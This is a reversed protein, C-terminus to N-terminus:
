NKLERPLIGFKKRFAATFHHPHKYGILHAVEGVYMKEDLLLRKAEKMRTDHLHGFVTTGFLEKFGNKLKMQNIGAKRALEMISHPQNYYLELLDKVEHLSTIDQPKLKSTTTQDQHDLQKIQLLFLEIAKAELYIGKLHGSYPSHQMDHIVHYMAPTIQATLDFAPMEASSHHLNMLFASEQTVIHNFFHESIILEFFSRTKKGTPEINQTYTNAPERYVVFQKEAMRQNLQPSDDALKFHSIIASKDPTFFLTKELPNSYSGWRLDIQNFAIEDLQMRFGSEDQIINKQENLVGRDMISGGANILNGKANVAV